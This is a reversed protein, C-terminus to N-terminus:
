NHYVFLAAIVSLLLGPALGAADNSPSGKCKSDTNSVARKGTPTTASKVACSGSGIDVLVHNIYWQCNHTEQNCEYCRSSTCSPCTGSTSSIITTSPHYSADSARDCTDDLGFSSDSYWRCLTNAICQTCSYLSCTSPCVAITTKGGPNATSAQLCQGFSTSGAISVAVWKCNTENKCSSCTSGACLPCQGSPTPNYFTSTVVGTANIDCKPSYLASFASVPTYWACPYPTTGNIAQCATCTESSSCVNGSCFTNTVRSYAFGPSAEACKGGVGALDYWGCKPDLTCSSCNGTYNSCAPCSNQISYTTGAQGSPTSTNLSCQGGFVGSNEYWACGAQAQCLPCTGAQCVPCSAAAVLGLATVDSTNTRCDSFTSSTFWACGTLNRCVNCTSTDCTAWASAVLFLLTALRM